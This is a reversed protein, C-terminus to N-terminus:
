KEPRVSLRALFDEFSDAILTVNQWKLDPPVPLGDEVYDEEDWEHNHDWYFLKGRKEGLVMLCIQDGGGDDGIPLFGEPMRQQYLELMGTLDYPTHAASGYFVNIFGLGDSSISPPLPVVPTFEVMERFRSAGFTELFTRYLDPLPAGLTQEVSAIESEDVPIFQQGKVPALGGLEEFRAKLDM